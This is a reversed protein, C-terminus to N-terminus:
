DNDSLFDEFESNNCHESWDLIDIITNAINERTIWTGELEWENWGNSNVYRIICEAPHRDWTWVDSSTWSNWFQIMWAVLSCLDRNRVCNQVLDTLTAWMCLSNWGLAHPHRREQGRVTFNGLDIVLNFPPLVKPEENWDTDTALRWNFYLTLKWNAVDVKKITWANKCLNEIEEWIKNTELITKPWSTMALKELLAMIQKEIEDRENTPVRYWNYLNILGQEWDELLAKMPFFISSKETWSSEVSVAPMVLIGKSTKMRFKRMDVRVVWYIERDGVKIFARKNNYFRCLFQYCLMFGDFAEDWKVFVFEGNEDKYPRVWLESMVEEPTKGIESLEVLIKFVEFWDEIVTDNQEVGVSVPEITWGKPLNSEFQARTRATQQWNPNRM